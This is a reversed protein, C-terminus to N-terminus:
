CLVTETEHDNGNGNGNGNGDGDGDLMYLAASPLGFIGLKQVAM